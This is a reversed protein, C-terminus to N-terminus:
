HTQSELDGKEIKMDYFLVVNRGKKKKFFRKIDRYKKDKLFTLREDSGAGRYHSDIHKFGCNEYCRIARKNFSFVNLRVKNLNVENFCFDVLVRLADTGYGQELHEKGLFIGVTAVRNKADIAHVGCGGLYTGDEKTEIAFGYEKESNADLAEYWKEEDEPRFPFLIGGRLMQGVEIENLYARVLPLDDKTYARLRVKEGQLM